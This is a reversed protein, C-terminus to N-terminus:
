TGLATRQALFGLLRANVFDPRAMSVFHGAGPVVGSAELRPILRRGRELAKHAHYLVENDAVFLLTPAVIRCLDDNSFRRPLVPPRQERFHELGLATQEVFRDNPMFRVLKFTQRTRRLPDGTPLAHQLGRFLLWFPLRFSRLTAAPALLALRDVRAPRFRAAAAALWAGQSLGVISAASLDLGDLLEAVWQACDRAGHLLAQQRGLGRDFVLDFAYIRFHPALAEVNRYWSTASLGAGPLLLLPPAAAAGCVIGHSMGYRTPLFAHEHPVPWLEDLVHQYAKAYADRGHRTAFQSRRPALPSRRRRDAQENGACRHRDARSTSM